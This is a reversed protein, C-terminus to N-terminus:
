YIKPSNRDAYIENLLYAVEDDNVQVFDNYFQAISIFIDPTFLCVFDDVKRKIKEVAEESAVPIAVIIKKPHRRAVLDISALMTNGTAVGDDIIIVTKNELNIPNRSGMFKKYREKLLRRIRITEKELYVEEMHFRPDIIRGELSVSGVALDSNLPHGIKKTLLVDLPLNLERAITYAMPVGGRPISLVVADEVAYKRLFPVLKKSAEYRNSFIM